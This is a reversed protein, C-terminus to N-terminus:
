RDRRLWGTGGRARRLDGACLVRISCISWGPVVPHAKLPVFTVHLVISLLLLIAARMTQPAKRKGREDFRDLEDTRLPNPSLDNENAM